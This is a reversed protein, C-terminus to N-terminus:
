KKYLSYTPDLPGVMNGNPAKVYGQAILSADFDSMKKTSKYYSYVLFSAGILVLAIFIWFATKM